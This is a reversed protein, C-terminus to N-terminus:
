DRGSRHSLFGCQAHEIGSGIFNRTIGGRRQWKRSDRALQKHSKDSQENMMPVTRSSPPLLWSGRPRSWSERFRVASPMM